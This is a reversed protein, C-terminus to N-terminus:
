VDSSYTSGTASSKRSRPPSWALPVRVVNNEPRWGCQRCGYYRSRYERGPKTNVVILAAGCRTCTTPTM